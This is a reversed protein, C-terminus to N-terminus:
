ETECKMKGQLALARRERRPDAPTSRIGGHSSDTIHATCVTRLRANAKQAELSPCMDKEEASSALM